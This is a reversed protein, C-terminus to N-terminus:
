HNLSSHTQDTYCFGCQDTDHLFAGPCQVGAVYNTSCHYASEAKNHSCQLLGEENGTCSVSDLLLPRRKAGSNWQLPVAGLSNLFPRGCIVLMSLLKALNFGVLLNSDLRNVFLVPMM